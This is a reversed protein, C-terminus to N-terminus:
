FNIRAALQFDRSTNSQGNVQGLNGSDLATSTIGFLVKNTVNFASADFLLKINEYINFTRKLSMDLDYTGPGRLGFPATRALNGITYAPSDVFAAKDITLQRLLRDPWPTGAGWSGNIYRRSRHLRLRLKTRLNRCWNPTTCTGM